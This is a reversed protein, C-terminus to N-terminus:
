ATGASSGGGWGLGTRPPRRCHKNQRTGAGSWDTRVGTGETESGFLYRCTTTDRRGRDGDATARYLWCCTGGLVARGAAEKGM